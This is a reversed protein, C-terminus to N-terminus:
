ALTFPRQIFLLDGSTEPVVINGGELHIDGGLAVTTADHDDFKAVTDLGTIDGGWGSTLTLSEGAACPNCAFFDGIGERATGSLFFDSGMLVFAAAHDNITSVVGSSVSRIEDARAPAAAVLLVAAGACLQLVRRRM